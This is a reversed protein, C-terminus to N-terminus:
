PGTHATTVDDHWARSSPAAGGIGSLLRTTTSRFFDPFETRSVPLLGGLFLSVLGHSIAWISTAVQEPDDPALVGAAMCEQVRDLMFQRTACAHGAIEVPLTDASVLSRSRHIVEYYRPQDLAFTLYGLGTLELREAPTGGQLARYLYSGFTQFAEAVVAQLLAEKSDFHRYIAPPTVDLSAALKRLSFGEPGDALFMECARSLIVRTDPM